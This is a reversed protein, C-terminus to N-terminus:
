WMLVGDNRLTKLRLSASGEGRSLILINEKGRAEEAKLRIRGWRIQGLANPHGM